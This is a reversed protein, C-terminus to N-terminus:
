GGPFKIELEGEPFWQRLFNARLPEVTTLEWLRSQYHKESWGLKEVFRQRCFRWFSRPFCLLAPLFQREERRRPNVTFYAELLSEPLQAEWRNARLARQLLLVLEMLFIGPAALEFDILHWNKNQFIINGPAPDNHCFGMAATTRIWQDFGLRSLHKLSTLAQAQFYGGWKCITRDIRNGTPCAQLQEMTTTILATKAELESFPNSAPTNAIVPANQAAQHLEGWFRATQNLHNKNAFDPKKGPQWPILIYNGRPTDLGPVGNRSALLPVIGTFGIRILEHLQRHLWFLDEMPRATKKLLFTGQPSTLKWLSHFPQLRSAYIGYENKIAKLFIEM